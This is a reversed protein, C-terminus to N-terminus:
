RRFINTFNRVAKFTKWERIKFASDIETHFIHNTYNSITKISIALIIDLIHKENYGNEFFLRVDEESPNGRKNLMISTFEQLSKLKADPIEAGTRIADTINPPVKSVLDAIISHAAMCYSCNNEVSITLFVVEQEVSSFNSQTRFGKYADMYSKMLAPQNAMARYMNPIMKYEKRTITLLEKQTESAEDFQVLPLQMKYTLNNSM